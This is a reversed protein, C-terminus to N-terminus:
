SVYANVVFCTLGCGLLKELKSRVEQADTARIKINSRKVGRETAFMCTFYGGREDVIEKMSKEPM